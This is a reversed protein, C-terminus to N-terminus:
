VAATATSAASASPAGEYLWPVDLLRAGMTRLALDRGVQALGRLHFIDGNRIARAQVRACRQWRLAAYRQLDAAVTDSGGQLCAALAQADEIAMGAGQALYPRMPHAADGMLAIRGRAMQAGSTMPSRDSLPWLRWADIAGLLEQLAPAAWAMRRRLEVANASHDWSKPDGAVQGKVIAVVNLWEGRHVPYLVVHFDPGMWVTVSDARLAQPLASQEVMARYALHGSVRPAADHVVQTRLKSWVGDAAVLVPAQLMQDKVTHLRVEQVDQTVQIVRAGLHLQVNSCGRLATLLVNQLDARAITLYPAGYRQEMAGALPLVALLAGSTANRVNLQLPRAAVADLADTLGWAHLIRVVNPSIQIGAGFEGFANTQELLDIQWGAQASALASALGGIGGGVVLMNKTMAGITVRHPPWLSVVASVQM